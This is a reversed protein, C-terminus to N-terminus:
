LLIVNYNDVFETDINFLVKSKADLSRPLIARPKGTPKYDNFTTM